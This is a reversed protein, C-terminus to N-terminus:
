CKELLEAAKQAVPSRETQTLTIHAFFDTGRFGNVVSWVDANDGSQLYRADVQAPDFVLVLKSGEGIRSIINLLETRSFNQAEEVVIYQDVLSRGRLYSIPNVSVMRSIDGVVPAHRRIADLSDKVASTWPAMKDGVDGPLFGLEQGVGMEHLSRFVTVKEYHSRKVESIGCALAVLSKGTGARGALSVMALSSDLLYTIAVAQELSRADVGCVSPWQKMDHVDGSVVVKDGATAGFRDRICVVASMDNMGRDRLFQIVRDNEDNNDHAYLHELENDDLTVDVVGSFVASDTVSSTAIGEAALGMDFTAHLRMPVDNSLVTVVPSGHGDAEGIEHAINLAVALVTSDHSGDRLHLPLCAQNTHNPEVVVTIDRDDDVTVGDRAAVGYTCRMNELMHLWSRAFAGVTRDHRKGELESVVVSPIVLMSHPSITSLITTGAMLLSSTDAVLISKLTVYQMHLREKFVSGLIQPIDTM